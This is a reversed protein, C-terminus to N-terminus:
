NDGTVRGKLKEIRENERKRQKKRETGAKEQRHKGKIGRKQRKGKKM